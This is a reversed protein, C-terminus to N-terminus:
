IDGIWANFILYRRNYALIIQSLRQLIKGCVTAAERWHFSSIKALVDGRPRLGPTPIPIM